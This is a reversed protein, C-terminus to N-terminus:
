DYKVLSHVDYNNLIQKGNLAGLEVVFFIAAITGGLREILESAAFATGGTALLDDVLLVSQGKNLADEQIEIVATGYEITYSRKLTKGPLKGAKRIPVFGKDLVNALISGFIFGRSEIAAILDFSYRSAENTFRDIVYSLVEPQKLIPSIDRFIIGNKPFNVFNRINGKLDVAFDTHCCRIFTM